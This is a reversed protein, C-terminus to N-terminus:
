AQKGCTAGIQNLAAFVGFAKKAALNYVIAAQEKTKFYGLTFCRSNIRIRAVWKKDPAFWSVGRFGSGNNKYLKTNANNQSQTCPRLNEFRNNHSNRDRHDVQVPRYGNWFIFILVHLQYGVGNIEVIFYRGKSTGAVQGTKKWSLYGGVHYDFLQKLVKQSPYKLRKSKAPQTM